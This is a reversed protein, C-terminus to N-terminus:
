TKEKEEERLTDRLARAIPKALSIFTVFDVKGPVRSLSGYRREMHEVAGKVARELKEVRALAADREAEAQEARRLARTAEASVGEIDSGAAIREIEERQARVDANLAHNEEVERRWKHWLTGVEAEAKEVRRLAAAITAQDHKSIVMLIYEDTKPVVAPPTINIRGIPGAEFVTPECAEITRAMGSLTTESM